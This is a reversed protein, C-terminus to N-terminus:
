ALKVLFIKEDQVSTVSNKDYLEILSEVKRKKKHCNLRFGTYSGEEWVMTSPGATQKVPKLTSTLDPFEVRNVATSASRPKGSPDTERGYVAVGWSNLIPEECPLAEIDIIDGVELADGFASNDDDSSSIDKSGSNTELKVFVSQLSSSQERSCSNNM